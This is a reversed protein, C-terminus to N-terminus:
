ISIIETNPYFYELIQEATFGGKAMAAAGNLSMGLNSGIGRVSFLFREETYEVAIATSRLGFASRLQEGTLEKEGFCITLLVGSGSYEANKFWDARKASLTTTGYQEVLTRMVQEDSFAATSLGEEIDKDAPVDVATLWPVGGNETKGSSIECYPALILEGDYTMIHSLGYDAARQLKLLYHEYSSGHLQKAEESPLFVQQKDTFDAGCFGDNNQLLYQANGAIVVAAAKLAEESGSPHITGFLCGVIYDRCLLTVIEGAQERYLTIKEPTGHLRLEDANDAACSTLLLLATIIAIIRM